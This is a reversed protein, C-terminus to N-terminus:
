DNRRAHTYQFRESGLTNGNKRNDGEERSWDGNVVIVTRTRHKSWRWWVKTAFDAYLTSSRQRCCCVFVSVHFRLAFVSAVGPYVNLTIGSYLRISEADVMLYEEHFDIIKDSIKVNVSQSCYNRSCQRHGWKLVIRNQGDARALVLSFCTCSWLVLPFMVRDMKQNSWRFNTTARQEHCRIKALRKRQHTGDAVPACACGRFMTSEAIQLTSETTGSHTHERTVCVHLRRDQREKDFAIFKRVFRIGRARTWKSFKGIKTEHAAVCNGRVIRENKM